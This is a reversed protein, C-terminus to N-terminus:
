DSPSGIHDDSAVPWVRISAQPDSTQMWLNLFKKTDGYTKSVYETIAPDFAPDYGVGTNHNNQDVIAPRTNSTNIVMGALNANNSETQVNLTYTRAYERSGVTKRVTM